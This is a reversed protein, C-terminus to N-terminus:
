SEGRSGLLGCLLKTDSQEPDIMDEPRGVAEMAPVAPASAVVVAAGGIVEPGAAETL